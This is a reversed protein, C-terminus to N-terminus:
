DLVIKKIEFFINKVNSISEWTIKKNNAKMRTPKLEM